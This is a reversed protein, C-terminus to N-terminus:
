QMKFTYEAQAILMLTVGAAGQYHLWTPLWPWCITAM